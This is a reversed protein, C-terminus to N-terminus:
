FFVSWDAPHCSSIPVSTVQSVWLAQLVSSQSMIGVLYGSYAHPQARVGRAPDDPRPVVGSSIFMGLITSCVSCMLGGSPYSSQGPVQCLRQPFRDVTCPNGVQSGLSQSDSLQYHLDDEMLDREDDGLFSDDDGQLDDGQVSDTSGLIDFDEGAADCYEPDVEFQTFRSSSIRMCPQSPHTQHLKWALGIGQLKKPASPPDPFHFITTNM